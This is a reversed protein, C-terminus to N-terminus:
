TLHKKRIGNELAGVTAAITKSVAVKLSSIRWGWPRWRSFAAQEVCDRARGPALQEHPPAIGPTELHQKHDVREGREGGPEIPEREDGCKEDCM